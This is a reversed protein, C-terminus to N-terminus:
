IPCSEDKGHKENEYLVREIRSYIKVREEPSDSENRDLSAELIHRIAQITGEQVGRNRLHRLIRRRRHRRERNEVAEVARVDRDRNIQITDSIQEM